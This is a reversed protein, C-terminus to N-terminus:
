NFSVHIMDGGNMKNIMMQDITTLHVTSRMTFENRLPLLAESNRRGYYFRKRGVTLVIHFGELAMVRFLAVYVLPQSHSKYKYVIDEFTGGQSKNITLSCVPKLPFNNRKVHIPRNRNLPVTTSRRNIPVM